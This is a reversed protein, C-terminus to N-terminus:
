NREIYGFAERETEFYRIPIGDYAVFARGLCTGITYM